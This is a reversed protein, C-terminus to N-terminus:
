GEVVRLQREEQTREGRLHVQHQVAEGAPHGQELAQGEPTVGLGNERM